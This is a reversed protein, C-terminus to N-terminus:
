SLFDIRPKYWIERGSSVMFINYSTIIINYLYLGGVILYFPIYISSIVSPSIEILSGVKYNWWVLYASLGLFLLITWSIQFSLLKKANTTLGRIQDRQNIWLILPIFIGLLPFLLFSLASIHLSTIYSRDEVKRRGLLQEVSVDLAKSIEIITNGTPDTEGNEVRQITRISLGTKDALKEQSYGKQIRIQKIKKSIM